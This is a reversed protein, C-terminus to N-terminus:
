RAERRYRGKQVYEDRLESLLRRAAVSLEYQLSPARAPPAPCEKYLISILVDSLAPIEPCLTLTKSNSEWHISRGGSQVDAVAFDENEKKCIRARVPETSANAVVLENGYMEIEETGATNRRRYARRIVELPSRWRLDRDRASLRQVLDVLRAGEDRFSDHHAVIFCPKGLLMDFAFNELGHHEYRRTYIPFAGYTLIAVDWVDRILTAAGERDVPSIETNVAAIFGNRKLVGPCISSFVGQPFVMVPDHHIKTRREHKNMRALALRAKRDLIDFSMTGFESAIHDCGHISVSFLASEHRFFASDARSTRRWNWPIFAINATFGHRKMLGRLQFFDCFGYRRRLLPDDIILCAGLERPRWMVSAFTSALFTVLPVATALHDKVDYHNGRAPEDIDVIASSACFYVPVGLFQFSVFVADGGASIIVDQVRGNGGDSQVLVSDAATLRATMELGSMPGTLAPLRGSIHVALPGRPAPRVQWRSQPQLTALAEESIRRDESAYSYLATANRLTAAGQSVSLAAALTDISTFVAYNSRTELTTGPNAVDALSLSKWPIGFFTLIRM